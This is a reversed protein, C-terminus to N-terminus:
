GIPWRRSTTHREARDEAKMAKEIAVSLRRSLRTHIRTAEIPEMREAIALLGDRLISLVWQDPDERSMAEELLRAASRADIRSALSVLAQAVLGRTRADPQSTLAISLMRAVSVASSADVRNVM